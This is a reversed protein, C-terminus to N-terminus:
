FSKPSSLPGTNTDCRRSSFLTRSLSVADRSGEPSKGVLACQLLVNEMLARGLLDCVIVAHHRLQPASSPPLNTPPPVPYSGGAPESFMLLLFPLPATAGVPSLAAETDTVNGRAFAGGRAASSRSCSSRLYVFFVLRLKTFFM